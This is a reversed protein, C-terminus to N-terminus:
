YIVSEMIKRRSAAFNEKSSQRPFHKPRFARPSITLIIPLIPIIRLPVFHHFGSLKDVIDIFEAFNLLAEALHM